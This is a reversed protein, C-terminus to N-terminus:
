RSRDVLLSPQEMSESKMEHDEIQEPTESVKIFIPASSSKKNDLAPAPASELVPADVDSGSCLAIESLCMLKVRRLKRTLMMTSGMTEKLMKQVRQIPTPMPTAIVVTKSIMM